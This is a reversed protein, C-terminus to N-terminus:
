NKYLITPAGEGVYQLSRITNYEFCEMAEDYSCGDRQLIEICKDYDYVANFNETHGIFAEDFGDLTYRTIENEDCIEKYEELTM